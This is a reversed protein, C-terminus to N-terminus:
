YSLAGALDGLLLSTNGLSALCSAQAPLLGRREAIRLAERFYSVAVDHRALRACNIGAAQLVRCLEVEDGLIRAVVIAEEAVVLGREPEGLRSLAFSLDFLAGTREKPSQAAAVKAELAAIDHPAPTPTM